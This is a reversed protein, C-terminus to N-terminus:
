GTAKLYPRAKSHAGQRGSFSLPLEFSSDHDSHASRISPQHLVFAAIVPHNLVFLALRPKLLLFCFYKRRSRFPAEKFGTANIGEYARSVATTTISPIVIKLKEFQVSDPTQAINILGCFNRSSASGAFEIKEVLFQIVSSSTTKLYLV